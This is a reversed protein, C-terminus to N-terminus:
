LKAAEALMKNFVGYSEPFVDKIKALSGSNTTTASFMEAFAEIAVPHADRMNGFYDKWGTWYEKTHGGKFKGKTAGGLMDIVDSNQKWNSRLDLYLENRTDDISVRTGRQASLNKQYSKIYQNAEKELAKQFEGDNYNESFRSGFKRSIARDISHGSEHMVSEYKEHYYDGMASIEVNVSIVGNKDCSARTVRSDNRGVKVEDGYKNWVDQLEQPAGAVLKEINKAHSEGFGKVLGQKPTGGMAATREKERAIAMDHAKSKGPAYTYSTAANANEFRGRAEHYPNFKEIEVITDYRNM